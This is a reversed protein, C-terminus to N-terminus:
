FDQKNEGKCLKTIRVSCSCRYHDDNPDYM